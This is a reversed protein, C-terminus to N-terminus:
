SKKTRRRGIALGAGGLLFLAASIPEPAGLFADDAFLQRLASPNNVPANFHIFLNASTANLPAAGSVEFLDWQDNGSYIKASDIESIKTNGDYWALSVWASDGEEMYPSNLYASAYYTDGGTIAVKTKQSATMNRLAVNDDAWFEAAWSGSLV